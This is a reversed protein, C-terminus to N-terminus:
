ETAITKPRLAKALAVEPDSHDSLTYCYDSKDIYVLQNLQVDSEDTQVYTFNSDDLEFSIRTHYSHNWNSTLTRQVADQCAGFNDPKRATRSSDNEQRKKAVSKEAYQM